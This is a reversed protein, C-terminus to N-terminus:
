SPKGPKRYRVVPAGGPGQEGTVYDEVAGEDVLERLIRKIATESGGLEDVLNAVTKSDKGILDLVAENEKPRM